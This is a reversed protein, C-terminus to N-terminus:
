TRKMSIPRFYRRRVRRPCRDVDRRRTSAHARPARRLIGLRRRRPRSSPHPHGHTGGSRRTGDRRAALQAVLRDLAADVGIFARDRRWAILDVHTNCQVLGPAPNRRRGRPRVDVTRSIRSPCTARDRGPRHSEVAAGAGPRLAPRVANSGAVARRWNPSPRRWRGTAVWSGTARAPRRMIAIRTGTSSWRSWRATAVADVLSPEILAPIAALAVPVHAADAIALLRALAPSDRCADDDRCWLDAQRGAAALRGLERELRHWARASVIAHACRGARREAVLEVVIAASRAAGESDFNWRGWQDRSGAADVAAALIEPTNTRDDVVVALDFERLREGRARQETEGNGTFPVVVPRAGSAVVDM